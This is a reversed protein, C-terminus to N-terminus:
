EKTVRAASRLKNLEGTPVVSFHVKSAAAVQEASRCAEAQEDRWKKAEEPTALRAAREVVMKAAVRPPVETLNGAKGGDPTELSVVVAFREQIAAEIDRIKQYYSKLDM